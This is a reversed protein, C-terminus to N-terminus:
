NRCRIERSLIRRHFSDAQIGLIPDAGEVQNSYNKIDTYGQDPKGTKAVMTVQVSRITTLNSNPDAIINGSSNIYVFDLADINEALLKAGGDDSRVLDNDGDGDSDALSYTISEIASLDNKYKTFTVSNSNAVTFGAPGAVSPHVYGAMRIDSTMIAMGARLNQQMASVQEQLVFFKQQTRYMNYVSGMVILGITMAVLLEVITFGKEKGINVDAKRKIYANKKMKHIGM